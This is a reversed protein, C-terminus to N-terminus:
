RHKQGPKVQICISNNCLADADPHAVHMAVDHRECITREDWGTTRTLFAVMVMLDVIESLEAALVFQMAVIKEAERIGIAENGHISWESTRVVIPSHKQRGPNQDNQGTETSIVCPSPCYIPIKSEREARMAEPHRLLWLIYVLSGEISDPSGDTNANFPTEVM